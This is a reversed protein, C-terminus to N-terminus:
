SLDFQWSVGFRDKLWGFMESFGYNDLPMLVAGGEALRNFAGELDPGSGFEVYISMSPTFTFDHQIPSDICVFHQNGMVFDARKISGDAGAEDVGYREVSRIEAEPFTETYLSMAEEAQGQFMLHTAFSRAM